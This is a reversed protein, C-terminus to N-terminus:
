VMFELSYWNECLPFGVDVVVVFIAVSFSEGGTEGDLGAEEFPLWVGSERSREDIGGKTAGEGGDFVRRM